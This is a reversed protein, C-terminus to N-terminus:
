YTREDPRAREVPPMQRARLKRVVREWLEPHRDIAQKSFVDLALGGSKNAGSHCAICYRGAFRGLAVPEAGIGAGRHAPSPRPSPQRTALSASVLGGAVLLVPTLGRMWIM